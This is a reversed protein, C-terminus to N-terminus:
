RATQPAAEIGQPLPATKTQARADRQMHRFNWFTVAFCILAYVLTISAKADGWPPLLSAKSAFTYLMILLFPLLLAYETKFYGTLDFGQGRLLRKSVVFLAIGGHMAVLAMFFWPKDLFQMATICGFTVVAAAFFLALGRSPNRETM